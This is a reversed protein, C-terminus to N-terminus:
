EVPEVAEEVAVVRGREALLPQHPSRLRPLPRDPHTPRHDGSTQPHRGPPWPYDIVGCVSVRWGGPGVRGTRGRPALGRVAAETHWGTDADSADALARTLTDTVTLVGCEAVGADEDVLEAVGAAARDDEAVFFEYLLSM